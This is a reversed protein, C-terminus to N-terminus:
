GVVKERARLAAFQNNNDKIPLILAVVGDQM